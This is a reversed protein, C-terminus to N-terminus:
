NVMEDAGNGLAGMEYGQGEAVGFTCSDEYREEVEYDRDNTKEVHGAGLGIPTLM